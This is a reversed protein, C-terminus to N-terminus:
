RGRQLEGSYEKEGREWVIKLIKGMAYILHINESHVFNIACIM